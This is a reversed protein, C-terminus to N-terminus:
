IYTLLQQLAAIHGKTPAILSKSILELLPANVTWIPWQKFISNFYKISHTTHTWLGRQLANSSKGGCRVEFIRVNDADFFRYAVHRRRGQPTLRHIYAVNNLATKFDFTLINCFYQNEEYIFAMICKDLLATFCPNSVIKKIEQIDTVSTNLTNLYNYLISDRDTILQLAGLGYAKISIPLIHEAATDQLEIDTENKNSRYYTKGVHTAIYEHACYHNIFEVIAIEALGGHTNNSITRLTFVNSLLTHVAKPNNASLAKFHTIFNDYYIYNNTNISTIGM